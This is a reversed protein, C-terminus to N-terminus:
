ESCKGRRLVPEEDPEECLCSKPDRFELRHPPAVELEVVLWDDADSTPVTEEVALL